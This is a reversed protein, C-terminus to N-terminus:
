RARPMLTEAQRDMIKSRGRAFIFLHGAPVMLNGKLFSFETKHSCTPRAALATILAEWPRSASAAGAARARAHHRTPASQREASESGGEICTRVPLRWRAVRATRLRSASAM